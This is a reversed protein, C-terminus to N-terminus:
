PPCRDSLNPARRTINQTSAVEHTMLAATDSAGEAVFVPAAYTSGAYNPLPWAVILGRNGGTKFGKEGNAFRYATGIVEGLEDREDIEWKGGVNRAIKRWAEPSVGAPPELEHTM